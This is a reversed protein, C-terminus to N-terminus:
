LYGGIVAAARQSAGPGGLLQPIRHLERVTRDCYEGDDLFAEVESVMNRVTAQRQILEPVIRRGAVLNVLAVDKVTLVRSAIQYTVFGTKYMVVMPRGIIGAELTATGSATLTVDSEYLVRRADDYVIDIGPHRQLLREYNFAGRVGAVTASLRRSKALTEAAKVMPPLNREIEQRRSGPLVALRGSGPLRSSVYEAPIEELLYNGVFECAVNHRQYFEQEFPLIVLMRDVCARIDDIRKRGWAWVQPSIYYVIPIGLAKVKAALRLNFGPYDVLVVVSPRRRTIETVCQNFLRRFFLLRRAAEWFGMVSLDSSVALQVQGLGALKPGGLGFVQLHPTSGKLCEVVRGAANDGSPDGASLFVLPGAM